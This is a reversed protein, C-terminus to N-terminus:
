GLMWSGTHFNTANANANGNDRNRYLSVCPKSRWEDAGVLLSGGAGYGQM